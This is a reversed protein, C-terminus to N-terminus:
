GVHSVAMFDAIDTGQPLLRTLRAVERVRAPRDDADIIRGLTTAIGLMQGTTMASHIMPKDM